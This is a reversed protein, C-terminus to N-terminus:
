TGETACRVSCFKGYRPDVSSGCSPCATGTRALHNAWVTLALEVDKERLGLAECILEPGAGLTTHLSYIMRCLERYNLPRRLVYEPAEWLGDFPSHVPHLPSKFGGLLDVAWLSKERTRGRGNRRIVKRLRRWVLVADPAVHAQKALWEDPAGAKAEELLEDLRAFSEERSIRPPKRVRVPLEHEQPYKEREAVEEIIADLQTAFEERLTGM